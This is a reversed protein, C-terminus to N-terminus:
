KMYKIKEFLSNDNTWLTTWNKYKKFDIKKYENDTNVRHWNYGPEETDHSLIIPCKLDMM